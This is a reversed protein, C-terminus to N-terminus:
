SLDRCSSSPRHLSPFDTALCAIFTPPEKDTIIRQLIHDLLLDIGTKSLPACEDFGIQAAEAIQSLDPIPGLSTPLPGGQEGAETETFFPLDPRVHRNAPDTMNILDQAAVTERLIPTSPTSVILLPAESLTEPPDPSSDPQAAM